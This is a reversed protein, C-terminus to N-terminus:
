KRAVAGGVVRRCCLCMCTKAGQMLRGVESQRERGKVAAEALEDGTESNRNRVATEGEVAEDNEGM